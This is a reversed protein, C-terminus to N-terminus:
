PLGSALKGDFYVLLIFGVVPLCAEVSEAKKQIGIVGFNHIRLAAGAAREM